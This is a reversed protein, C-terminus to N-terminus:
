ISNFLKDINDKKHYYAFDYYLKIGKKYINKIAIRNQESLLISKVIEELEKLNKILEKYSYYPFNIVIKM